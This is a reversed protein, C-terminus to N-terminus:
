GSIRSVPPLVQDRPTSPPHERTQSGVEPQGMGLLGAGDARRLEEISLGDETDSKAPVLPGRQIGPRGASGFAPEVGKVVVVQQFRV